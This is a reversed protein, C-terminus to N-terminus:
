ECLWFWSSVKRRWSRILFHRSITWKLPKLYFLIPKSINNRFIILINNIIGTADSDNKDDIEINDPLKTEKEEHRPLSPLWSDNAWVWTPFHSARVLCIQQRINAIAKTFFRMKSAGPIVMIKNQIILSPKQNSLIKIIILRLFLNNTM